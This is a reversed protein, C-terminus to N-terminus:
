AIDTRALRMSPFRPPSGNAPRCRNVNYQHAPSTFIEDFLVFWWIMGYSQHQVLCLQSSRDLSVVQLLHDIHSHTVLTTGSAARDTRSIIKETDPLSTTQVLTGGRVGLEDPDSRVMVFREGARAEGEAGGVSV